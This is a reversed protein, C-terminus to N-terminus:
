RPADAPAALKRALFRRGPDAYGAARLSVAVV